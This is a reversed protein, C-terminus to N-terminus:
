AGLLPMQSSQRCLVGALPTQSTKKGLVPNSRDLPVSRDQVDLQQKWSIPISGGAPKRQLAATSCFDKQHEDLVACSQLEATLLLLVMLQWSALVAMQGPAEAMRQPASEEQQVACGLCPVFAALVVQLAPQEDLSPQPLSASSALKACPHSKSAKCAATRMATLLMADASGDSGPRVWTLHM